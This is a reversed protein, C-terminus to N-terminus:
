RLSGLLEDLREFSMEMGDTMGTQLAADRAEKSPYRVTMTMATRGGDEALVMEVETEPWPEGWSETNVLREPPEVVKYVGRMEMEEGGDQRWVFHWEGGPRLDIECVPMTWGEPGLMWQSVHQPDTWAAWVLDRPANFERTVVIEQKGPEAIFSTKSTGTRPMIDEKRPEYL